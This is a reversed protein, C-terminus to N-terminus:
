DSMAMVLDSSGVKLTEAKWLPYGPDVKGLVEISEECLEKIRLFDKKTVSKLPMQSYLSIINRKAIMMLHHHPHLFESSMEIAEEMRQVSTGGTGVSFLHGKLDVCLQDVNEKSILFNHVSCKWPSEPDLPAVPTLFGNECKQCRLSSLHSGLETPDSCRPCSCKFYWNKQLKRNRMMTGLIFAVYNIAIEEGQKIDTQAQVAIRRSVATIINRLNAITKWGTKSTCHTSLM